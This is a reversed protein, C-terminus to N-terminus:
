AENMKRHQQFLIEINTLNASHPSPPIIVFGNVIPIAFTTTHVEEGLYFSARWARFNQFDEYRFLGTRIADHITMRLPSLCMPGTSFQYPTTEPILPVQEYLSEDSIIENNSVKSSSATNPPVRVHTNSRTPTFGKKIRARDVNQNTISKNLLKKKLNSSKKPTSRAIAGPCSFGYAKPTLPKLTPKKKKNDFPMTHSLAEDNNLISSTKKDQLTKNREVVMSKAFNSTYSIKSLHPSVTSPPSQLSNLSSISKKSTDSKHFLSSVGSYTNSRSVNGFPKMVNANKNSLNTGSIKSVMNSFTNIVSRNIPEIQNEQVVQSPGALDSTVSEETSAIPLRDVTLREPINITHECLVSVDIDAPGQHGCSEAVYIVGAFTYDCCLWNSLRAAKLIKRDVIGILSQAVKPSLHVVTGVPLSSQRSLLWNTFRYIRFLFKWRVRFVSLLASKNITDPIPYGDEFAQFLQGYRFVVSKKLDDTLKEVCSPCKDVYRDALNTPNFSHHIIFAVAAMIVVGILQHPIHFKEGLFYGDTSLANATSFIRTFTLGVALVRRKLLVLAIIILIFILLGDLTLATVLDCIGIPKCDAVSFNSMMVPLASFAAARQKKYYFALLVVFTWVVLFIVFMPWCGVTVHFDDSSTSM